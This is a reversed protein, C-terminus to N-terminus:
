LLAPLIPALAPRLARGPAPHHGGAGAHRAMCLTLPWTRLLIHGHIGAEVSVAATLCYLCYLWGMLLWGGVQDQVMHAYHLHLVRGLLVRDWHAMVRHHANVHNAIDASCCPHARPSTSALSPPLYLTALLLRSPPGWGEELLFLVCPCRSHHLHLLCPCKRTLNFSWPVQLPQM